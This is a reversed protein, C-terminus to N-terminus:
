KRVSSLTKEAPTKTLMDWLYAARKLTLYVGLYRLLYTSTVIRNFFNYGMAVWKVLYSGLSYYYEMRSYHIIRQALLYIWSGRQTMNGIEPQVVGM